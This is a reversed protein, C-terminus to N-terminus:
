RTSAIPRSRGRASHNQTLASTLAEAFAFSPLAQQNAILAKTQSTLVKFAEADARPATFTLYILQFLTEIDKPSGGGTLGEETEGVIPRVTAVKGALQKRLDVASFKGLGGASVVQMATQAAVYDADSALSTGGPSFARFVVEDDKFTTPKLVVKM